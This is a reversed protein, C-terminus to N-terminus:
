IQSSVQNRFSNLSPLKLMCGPRLAGAKASCFAHGALVWLLSLAAGRPPGHNDLQASLQAPPIHWPGQAWVGAKSGGACTAAWKVM